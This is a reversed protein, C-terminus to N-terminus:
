ALGRCGSKSIIVGDSRDLESGVLDALGSAYSGNFASSPLRSYDIVGLQLSTSLRLQGSFYAADYKIASSGGDQDAEMAITGGTSILVIRMFLEEFKLLNFHVNLDYYNGYM